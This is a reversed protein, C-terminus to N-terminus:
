GVFQLIFRKEKRIKIQTIPFNRNTVSVFCQPNTELDSSIKQTLSNNPEWLLLIMESFELLVATATQVDESPYLAAGCHQSM